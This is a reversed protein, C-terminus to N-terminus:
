AADAAAGLGNWVSQQRTAGGAVVDRLRRAVGAAELVERTRAELGARAVAIWADIEPAADLVAAAHAILPREGLLAFQKPESGGFRAGQGGAVLLAVVRKGGEAERPASM